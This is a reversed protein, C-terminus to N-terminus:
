QTTEGEENSGSQYLIVGFVHDTFSFFTSLNSKVLILVKTRGCVFKLRLPFIKLEYIQCRNQIWFLSGMLSLLSFAFMGIIFHAFAKVLEEGFFKGITFLYM